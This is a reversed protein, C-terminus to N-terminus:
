EFEDGLVSVCVNCIWEKCVKHIEQSDPMYDFLEPHHNNLYEAIVKLSLGEYQPVKIFRVKKSKVDLFM